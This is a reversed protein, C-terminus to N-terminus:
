GLLLVEDRMPGGREAIGWFALTKYAVKAPSLTPAYPRVERLRNADDVDEKRVEEVEGWEVRPVLSPVDSGSAICFEAELLVFALDPGFPACSLDPVLVEFRSSFGLM